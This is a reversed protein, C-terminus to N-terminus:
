APVVTFATGYVGAATPAPVEAIRLLVALEKGPALEPLAQLPGTYRVWTTGEGHGDDLGLWLNGDVPIVHSGARLPSIDLLPTTAVPGDNRITFPQLTTANRQGPQLEVFRVAGEAPMRVSVVPRQVFLHAETTANAGGADSATLTLTWNGLTAPAVVIRAAELSANGTHVVVGAARLTWAVVDDPGNADAIRVQVSVAQSPRVTAPAELRVSPAVNAVTASVAGGVEGPGLGPTPAAAQWAGESWQLSKGKGPAAPKAAEFGPPATQTATGYGFWARVNGQPDLLTAGDGADNWVTKAASQSWAFGSGDPTGNSWVVVRRGADLTFAPFTFTNTNNAATPADRLMWGTLDVAMAGANHLEIFERQGLSAEPAPLLEAIRLDPAEEATGLPALTTAALLLSALSFAARM